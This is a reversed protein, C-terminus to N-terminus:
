LGEGYDPKFWITVYKKELEPDGQWSLIVSEVPGGSEPVNDDAVRVEADPDQLLLAALDKALM